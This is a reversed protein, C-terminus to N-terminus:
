GPHIQSLIGELQTAFGERVFEATVEAFSDAGRIYVKLYPDLRVVTTRSFAALYFSFGIIGGMILTLAFIVAASVRTLKQKRGPGRYYDLDLM